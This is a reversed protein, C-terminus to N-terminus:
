LLGGGAEAPLKRIAAAIADAVFTYMEGDPYMQEAAEACKERMGAQGQAYGALWVPWLDSDEARCALYHGPPLIREDYWAKFRQEPTM